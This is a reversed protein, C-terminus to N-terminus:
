VVILTEQLDPHNIATCCTAILIEKLVGFNDYFGSVDTICETPKIMCFTKGCCINDTCSNIEACCQIGYDTPRQVTTAVMQSKKYSVVYVANMKRLKKNPNQADWNRAGLGFSALTSADPVEEKGVMSMMMGM